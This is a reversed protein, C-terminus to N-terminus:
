YKCPLLRVGWRASKGKSTHFAGIRQKTFQYTFANRGIPKSKNVKCFNLYRSYLDELLEFHKINREVNEELFKKFM